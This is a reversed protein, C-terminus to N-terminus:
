SSGHTERRGREQNCCLLHVPKGFDRGLCFWVSCHRCPKSCYRKCGLPIHMPMRYVAVYAHLFVCCDYSHQLVETNGRMTVERVNAFKMTCGKSKLTAVRFTIGDGAQQNLFHIRGMENNHVMVHGRQLLDYFPSEKGFGLSYHVSGALALMQYKSRNGKRKNQFAQENSDDEALAWSEQVSVAVIGRGCMQFPEKVKVVPIMDPDGVQVPSIEPQATTVVIDEEFDIEETSVESAPVEPASKKAKKKTSQKASSVPAATPTESAQKEKKRKKQAGSVNPPSAVQPQATSGSDRARVYKDPLFEIDNDLYKVEWRHGDVAHEDEGIVMGKIETEATRYFGWCAVGVALVVPERPGGRKAQRRSM